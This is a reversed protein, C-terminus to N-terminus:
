SWITGLAGADVIFSFLGTELTMEVLGTLLTNHEILRSCPLVSLCIAGLFM